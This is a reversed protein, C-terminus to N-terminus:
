RWGRGGGAGAASVAGLARRRGPARRAAMGGRCSATHQHTRPHTIGDGAGPRTPIRGCLQSAAVPAPTRRSPAWRHPLPPLPPSPPPSRRGPGRTCAPLHPHLPPRAPRTRAPLPPASATLTGAPGWGQLPPPPPPEAPDLFYRSPRCSASQPHLREDSHVHPEQHALSHRFIPLLGPSARKRTSIINFPSAAGQWLTRRPGAM